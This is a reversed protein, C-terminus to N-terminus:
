QPEAKAGGTGSPVRFIPTDVALRRGRCNQRFQSVALRCFIGKLRAPSPTKRGTRQGRALSIKDFRALANQRNGEKPPPARDPCQGAEFQEKQSCFSGFFS